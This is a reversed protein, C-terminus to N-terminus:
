PKKGYRRHVEDIYLQTDAPSYKGGGKALETGINALGEGSMAQLGPATLRSPQGTTTPPQQQTTTPTTAPAPTVTPNQAPAASAAPTRAYTRTQPNWTYPAQFKVGSPADAARPDNPQLAEAKFLPMVHAPNVSKVQASARTREIQDMVASDRTAMEANALDGIQQRVDDPLGADGTISGLWNQLRQGIGGFQNAIVLKGENVVAGPDFVKALSEIAAQDGARTHLNLGAFVAGYRSQGQQWLQMSPSKQIQDEMEMSQQFPVNASRPAVPTISKLQGNPYREGVYDAGPLKNPVMALEAPTLPTTTTPGMPSESMQNTRTNVQVGPGVPAYSPQQARAQVYDNIVKQYAPLAQGVQAAGKMAAQASQLISLPVTAKSYPDTVMPEANTGGGVPAGPATASGATGGPQMIPVLRGSADAFTGSAGAPPPAKTKTLYDATEAPLNGTAKYTNLGGDGASYRVAANHLGDTLVGEHFYNAGATLNPILDTNAGPFGYKKQMDSFTGPMVQAAGQAGASSTIVNGTKPDIHLGASEQMIMRAYQAAEDTSFGKQAMVTILPVRTADPLRQVDPLAAIQTENAPTGPTGPTGSAGPAAPTGPAAPAATGASPLTAAVGDRIAALRRDQDLDFQQKQLSLDQAAAERQAQAALLPLMQAQREAGYGAGMAGVLASGLGTRPGLSPAGAQALHAAFALWGPLATNQQDPTLLAGPSPSMAGGTAIPTLLSMIGGVPDSAAQDLLSPPADAM